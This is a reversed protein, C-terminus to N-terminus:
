NILSFKGLRHLKSFDFIQYHTALELLVKVADFTKCQHWCTRLWTKATLWVDEIPNQTPDNPAFQLFTITWDAEALGDNVASLFAKVAQSRHYPAGDWILALRQTPCQSMWYQLYEVPHEGTNRALENLRRNKKVHEPDTKPNVNQSKKWSLGAESFLDYYSQKSQVVVAYQDEVYAQLDPLYGDNQAKIWSLTEAKPDATLYGRSGRRYGLKLGPLGLLDYLQSGKTIFGSSVSLSEQIERHKYGNLWMQVALARKLERPDPNSKIFATLEELM